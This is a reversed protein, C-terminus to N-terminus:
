AVIPLKDMAAESLTNKHAEMGPIVTKSKATVTAHKAKEKAKTQALQSVLGTKAMFSQRKRFRRRKKNVGTFLLRKTLKMIMKIMKNQNILTRGNVVVEMKADRLAANAVSIMRRTKSIRRDLQDLDAKAGKMEKILDKRTNIKVKLRRDLEGRLAYMNAYKRQHNKKKAYASNSNGNLLRIQKQNEAILSYLLRLIKKVTSPNASQLITMLVNSTSTQSIMAKLFAKDILLGNHKVASVNLAHLGEDVGM